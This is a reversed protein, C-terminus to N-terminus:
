QFSLVASALMVVIGAVIMGVLALLYYVDASRARRVEPQVRQSERERLQTGTTARAGIRETEDATQGRRDAGSSPGHHLTERRGPGVDAPSPRPNPGPEAPADSTTPEFAADSGVTATEVDGGANPGIGARETPRAEGSPGPDADRNHATWGRSPDRGLRDSESAAVERWGHERGIDNRRPGAQTSGITTATNSESSGLEAIFAAVTPPRDAPDASMSREILEDIRAPTREAPVDPPTARGLRSAVGALDATGVRRRDEVTDPIPHGALLARMTAALGYVDMTPHTPGTTRAEPAAYAGEVQTARTSVQDNPLCMGFDAIRPRLFDTLLINAPKLNRHVLGWLHVEAITSAVPKILFTAERWPLPGYRTMLDAFSGRRYYPLVLYPEGDATTGTDLLPVVGTHGSLQGTIARERDFRQGVDSSLEDHLVKVAVTRQTPTQYARFTSAAPGANLLRLQTLAAIALDREIEAPPRGGIDATLADLDEGATESVGCDELKPGRGRKTRARDKCAWM